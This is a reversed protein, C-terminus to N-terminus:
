AASRDPIGLGTTFGIRWNPYELNWGLERKAKANSAGRSETMMAVGLEGAFLRGLWLPVRRPPKAGIAASLAPLWEAVPAPEDDVIHYRGPKRGEIAQVTATAADHIHIFSWVGAGGDVIPFRRHRVADLQPGGQGLGTGPGYFGGYRLVTAEVGGAGLVSRELTAMAEVGKRMAAPPDPDFPDQETKVWAGSRAFAGPGAYSQAVIRPVGARRIGELLHATGETRLRNTVEFFGEFKRFDMMGALATAEHVVVDPETRVIAEIASERDLLDLVLPTAGAARLANEKAGTRTTGIVAHGREVLQRVLPRGIAGSAGVVLVKM